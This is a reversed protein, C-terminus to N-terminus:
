ANRGGDSRDVVTRSAVGHPSNCKVCDPCRLNAGCTACWQLSRRFTLLGALFGVLLAAGIAVFAVGSM